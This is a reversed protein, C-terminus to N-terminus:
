VREERNEPSAQRAVKVEAVRIPSGHQTYGRRLVQLVTGEATGDTEEVEVARMSGPDFPLGTCRTEHVGQAQLAEDLWDLCLRCGHDLASAAEHSRTAAEHRRALWGPLGRSTLGGRGKALLAGAAELVRALRDRLDLLLDLSELRADERAASVARRQDAEARAFAREALSRAESLADEHAATLAEQREVLPALRDGLDRFARGQLGVEQTLATMASWLAYLSTRPDQSDPRRNPDTLEALIEGALGEPPEEEELVDDLWEEFRRLIQERTPGLPLPEELPEPPTAEEPAADPQDPPRDESAM